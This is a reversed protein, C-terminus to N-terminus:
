SADCPKAQCYLLRTLPFIHANVKPVVVPWVAEVIHPLDDKAIGIISYLLWPEGLPM